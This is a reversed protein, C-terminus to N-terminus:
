GRIDMIKQGLKYASITLLASITLGIVGIVTAFSEAFGSSMVRMMFVIVIPLINMVNMQMKNSTIATEIESSIMIKESIIETTRRVISKINGGTRYCTSFVTAFNNIDPIGSRFGFDELMSEIPINNNVGNLIEQVEQVIFAEESYQEQLDKYVAILSDNINMGSALANTLASAFDCFQKKLKDMRKKKLSETIVPIFYKNALIGGLSFVILNSIYTMFTAKGELQFLGGYFILFVVGGILFLILIYFMREIPKLIYVNYNLVQTNIKSIYYQPEQEKKEKKAKKAM